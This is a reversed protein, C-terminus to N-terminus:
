CCSEASHRAALTAMRLTVKHITAHDGNIIMFIIPTQPSGDNMLGTMESSGMRKALVEQQQFGMM